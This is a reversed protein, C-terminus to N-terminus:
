TASDLRVDGWRACLRQAIERGQPSLGEDAIVISCSLLGTSRLWILRRLSQELSDGDGQGHILISVDRPTPSLLKGFFWWGWFALSTVCFLTVSIDALQTTM